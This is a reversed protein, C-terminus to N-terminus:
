ERRLDAIIAKVDQNMMCSFHGKPCKEFGIKSCPRCELDKVEHITFSSPDNPRYPYMGLEPVTNGWVSVIPVDFASSIHMMGTDNTLVKKAQDVLSASGQLSFQGCANFLNEKSAKEILSEGFLKDEPGGVFIIPDSLENIVTLLMEEPFQKTKFKAGLVICLYSKPQIGYTAMVDVQEEKAIQFDCPQGDNVVGLHKVAEFYRDVVHVDPMKNIKLKVLLWKQINLKPFARYPRRLKAKLSKTRLNNHLDIVWDFKEKQLAPVLEDISKEIAHFKDVHPNSALVSIFSKKTLFHLEVSPLQKKIARLVPTTLVIDGISSFRVVLIKM